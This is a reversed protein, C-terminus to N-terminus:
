DNFIRILQNILISILCYLFRKKNKEFQMLITVVVSSVGLMFLERFRSCLFVLVIETMRKYIFINVWGLLTLLINICVTCSCIENRAIWVALPPIFVSLIILLLKACADGM